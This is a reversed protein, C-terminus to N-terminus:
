KRIVGGTAKKVAAVIKASVADIEDDTLTKDRPQLTVELALSKRGEGVKEGEYVDFIHAGAILAKDAGRAARLVDGAAVDRGLEFAFDRTVPQLGSVELRARQTGKRKRAPLAKLSIEFMVAPLAVGLKSAVLPHVAGFCGLHTKPGLQIAASQGPHFWDPAERSFQVSDASVGLAQLLALADAKADAWSVPAGSGDWHRGAGEHRATGIRVGAVRMVQDDPADGRYTNGIEFLAADRFGRNANNRAATLLVPLLSPRMDSMDTSIPNALELERAGGGFMEAQAKPIFAWNVAEAMGRAALLRRARSVRKQEATLVPKAVGSLRPLAVAPVKDVGAIRIVEEVLDASGAM